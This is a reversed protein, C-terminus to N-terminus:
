GLSITQRIRKVLISLVSERGTVIEATGALGLKVKGRFRGRAIEKAELQVRVIYAAVGPQGHVSEVKSDPSVYAVTGTLVGYRQYDYADFKIQVPMGPRLHGVDESPVAAEFQFSDPAAIEMVQKGAELVDGPQIRGGIIVGDIPARLIADARLLQLHDLEKKASDAEGKRVVRRATLEGQQVELDRRVLELARRKVAVDKDDVPLRAQVLREEAERMKGTSEEREKESAAGRKVLADVRKWHKRAVTLETEARRKESEHRDRNVMLLSEAQECELQAKRLASEFQSERVEELRDLEALEEDAAQIVRSLKAIRHEIPETDLRVLVDGKRVTDGEDVPSEVVRGDLDSHAATFIRAPPDIPRVRGIARVVLNAKVLWSWALAGVILTFLLIATGHVVAPAQAMLTQRFETCDNVTIIKTRTM